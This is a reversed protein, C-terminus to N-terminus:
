KEMADKLKLLAKKEIRSIYSRSIGLKKAIARQPLPDRGSLGYRYTIIIKERESLVEDMVSELKEFLMRMTVSDETLLEASPLIDSYSVSNGDKDEGLAEYLSIEAEQKKSARLYMLIENEACKALYSSLKGKNTDFTNVGKILGITGISIFDDLDRGKAYKKAIHACLRVNHEILKQKAEENGESLLLVLRQEEEFSLKEPFGSSKDNLFGALAFINKLLDFIANM